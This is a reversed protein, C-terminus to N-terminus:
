HKFCQIVPYNKDKNLMQEVVDLQADESPYYQKGDWSEVMRTNTIKIGHARCWALAKAPIERGYFIDRLGEYFCYKDQEIRAGVIAAAACRMMLPLEYRSRGAKVLMYELCDKTSGHFVCWNTRDAGDMYQTDITEGVYGDDSWDSMWVCVEDDVTTTINIQKMNIQKM